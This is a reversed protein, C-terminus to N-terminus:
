VTPTVTWGESIFVHIYTCCTCTVHPVHVHQTTTTNHTTTCTCTCCTCACTSSQVRAHPSRVKANQADHQHHKARATPRGHTPRLPEDHTHHAASHGTSNRRAQPRRGSVPVAPFTGALCATLAADTKSYTKRTPVEPPPIRTHLTTGSQFSPPFDTVTTVFSRPNKHFGCKTLQARGTPTERM